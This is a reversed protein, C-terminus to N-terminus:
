SIEKLHLTCETLILSDQALIDSNNRMSYRIYLYYPLYLQVLQLQLTSINNARTSYTSTCTTHDQVLQLQHLTSIIKCVSHMHTRKLHLYDVYTTAHQVQTLVLLRRTTTSFQMERQTSSTSVNM